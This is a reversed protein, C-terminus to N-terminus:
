ATVKVFVIKAKTCDPAKVSFSPSSKPKPTATVKPKTTAKPKSTPKSTAKTAATPKASPTTAANAFGVGSLVLALSMAVLLSRKM